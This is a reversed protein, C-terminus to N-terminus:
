QKEIYSSILEAYTNDDTVPKYRKSDYVDTFGNTVKYIEHGNGGCLSRNAAAGNTKQSKKAEYANREKKM